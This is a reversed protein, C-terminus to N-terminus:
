NAAATRYQAVAKLIANKVTQLDGARRQRHPILKWIRAGLGSRPRVTYDDSDDQDIGLAVLGDLTVVHTKREVIIPRVSGNMLMEVERTTRPKEFTVIM